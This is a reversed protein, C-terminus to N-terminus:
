YAEKTEWTRVGPMEKNRFNKRVYEMAAAELELRANKNMWRLLEGYDTVEFHRTTRLGKVTDKQAASAAKKAEMAAQAATEAERQAQINTADAKAAAAEAERELRQAEEWAAKRADEKEAALQKKFDAVLATLGKKLRDVDDITPKWRANADKWAKHLPETDAKRAEEIATGASRLSKLIADVANMQGEDTVKQGDLWNEAKSIDDAWPAVAEDISDPPNNHGIQALTM